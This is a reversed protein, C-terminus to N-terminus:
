AAHHHWHRAPSSAPATREGRHGAWVQRDPTPQVSQAERKEDLYRLVTSGATALILATLVGPILALAGREVYQFALWGGLALVFLLTAQQLTRWRRTRKM